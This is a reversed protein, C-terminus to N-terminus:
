DSLNRVPKDSLSLTIFLLSIERGTSSVKVFECHAAINMINNSNHCRLVLDRPRLVEATHILNEGCVGAACHSEASSAFGASGCLPIAKQLM